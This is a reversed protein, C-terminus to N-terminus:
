IQESVFEMADLRTDFYHLWGAERNLVWYVLKNYHCVEVTHGNATPSTILESGSVHVELYNEVADVLEHYDIGCRQKTIDEYHLCHTQLLQILNSAHNGLDLEDIIMGKIGSDTLLNALYDEITRPLTKMVPGINMTAGM